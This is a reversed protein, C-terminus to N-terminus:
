TIYSYHDMKHVQKSLLDATFPQELHGTVSVFVLINCARRVLIVLRIQIIISNSGLHTPIRSSSFSKTTPSPVSEMSHNLNACLLDHQCACDVQPHAFSHCLRLQAIRTAIMNDTNGHDLTLLVNVCIVVKLGIDCFKNKEGQTTANKKM